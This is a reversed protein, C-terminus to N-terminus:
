FTTLDNIYDRYAECDTISDCGTKPDSVLLLLFLM